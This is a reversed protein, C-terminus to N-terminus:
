YMLIIKNLFHLFNFHIGWTWACAKIATGLLFTSIVVGPVALLVM